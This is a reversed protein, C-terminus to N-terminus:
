EREKSGQYLQLWKHAIASLSYNQLVRQRALQGMRIREAESMDLAVRLASALAAADKPRVVLGTGGLAEAVGGCDTAVVVRESAMAELIVLPMGEWASSLVYIDAAALLRPIDRRVGLFTVREALGLAASQQQLADHLEGQGAVLVVLDPNSHVVKGVAQLLNPYDKADTLRGIALLVCAGTPIGLEARAQHREAPDFRYIDPNIGNNFVRMRGAPVAKKQEFAAVADESVNTVLDALSDTLRYALMRFAGGENTNHASSILRPFALGLRILRMFINAHVMHSHVVDPRFAALLRRMKLYTSIFSFPSARMGAVHLLVEPRVPKLMVEDVLSILLVDHGLRSYEDALDVVQKEAGGMGLGTVVLAIRM